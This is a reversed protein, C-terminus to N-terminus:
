SHLFLHDPSPLVSVSEQGPPLTAGFPGLCLGVKGGEREREEERTSARGEKAQRVAEDAVGVQSLMLQNAREPSMAGDHTYLSECAQYRCDHRPFLDVSPGVILM